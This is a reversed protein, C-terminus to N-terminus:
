PLIVLAYLAGLFFIVASGWHLLRIIQSYKTVPNKPCEINELIRLEAVGTLQALRAQLPKMAAEGGHILERVRLDLRSFCISIFVGFLGIGVAILKNDKQLAAVLAGTLFAAAVLFFNVGQMRQGAHLSFWQWPHELGKSTATLSTQESREGTLMDISRQLHVPTNLHREVFEESGELLISSNPLTIVVKTFSM